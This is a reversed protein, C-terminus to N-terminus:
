GVDGAVSVAPIQYPLDADVAAAYKRQAPAFSSKLRLCPRELFHYSVAATALTLGCRLMVQFWEPGGLNAEDLMSFLLFHWLYIGYSIRGLYQLPRSMLLARVFSQEQLGITMALILVATLIGVVSHSAISQVSTSKPVAAFGFFLHLALAVFAAPGIWGVARGLRSSTEILRTRYAIGAAAGFLLADARTDLGTYLRSASAGLGALVFREATLSAAALIIVTAVLTRSLRLRCLVLMVLPWLFYFQEEVALSWTHGLQRLPLLNFAEVWNSSYLLTAAAGALEAKRNWGTRLLLVFVVDVVLVALLAPLLRLGRRVYFNRLSIRGAAGFEEMLLCTILFGSLTFFVTVGSLGGATYGLHFAVVAVVAM